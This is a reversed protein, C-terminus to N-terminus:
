DDSIFWEVFEFFDIEGSGDQDLEQFAEQIQSEELDEGLKHLLEKLEKLDIYGSRDEDYADFEYKLYCLNNLQIGMKDAMAQLEERTMKYRKLFIEDIEENTPGFEDNSSSAGSASMTEMKREVIEDFGIEKEEGEEDKDAQQDVRKFKRRKALSALTKDKLEQRTWVHDGDSESDDPEQQQRRKHIDDKELSSPLDNTRLLPGVVLPRKPSLQKVQAAVTHPFPRSFTKDKTEPLFDKWSTLRQETATLWVQIDDSDPSATKPGGLITVNEDELLRLMTRTGPFVKAVVIDHQDCEETNSKIVALTTAIQQKLDHLMETRRQEAVDDSEKMTELQAGLERNRLDMTEIDRNLQNVYTLLSFNREELKVLIKVIETIHSIGTTSKITAFAQEFVEINKQHQKIHRRQISNLFALKFIRRMCSTDSFESEEEAVLFNRKTNRIRSEKTFRNLEERQKRDNHILNQKLEVVGEKFEKREVNVKKKLAAIQASADDKEQRAAETEGDIVKIQGNCERVDDQLKKFVQNMQLRERRLKDMKDRMALNDHRLTNLKSLSKALRNEMRKVDRQKPPVLGKRLYQKESRASLPIRGKPQDKIQPPMVKAPMVKDEYEQRSRWLDDDLKNLRRKELELRRTIVEIEHQVRRLREEQFQRRIVAM